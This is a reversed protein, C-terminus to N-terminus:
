FTQYPPACITRSPQFLKTWSRQVGYERMILVDNVKDVTGVPVQSICLCGYLVALGFCFTRKGDNCEQQKEPMPLEEFVNMEEDFYVIVQSQGRKVLWHLHGNM